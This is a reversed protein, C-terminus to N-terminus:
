YPLTLENLIYVDLAYEYKDIFDQSVIYCNRYEKVGEPLKGNFYAFIYSFLEQDVKQYKKM